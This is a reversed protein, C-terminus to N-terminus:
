AGDLWARGAAKMRAELESNRTPFERAVSYGSKELVYALAAYERPYRRVASENIDQVKALFNFSSMDYVSARHVIRWDSLAFRIAAESGYDSLARETMGPYHEIELAAM